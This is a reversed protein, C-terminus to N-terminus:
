QPDCLEEERCAGPPDTSLEEIAACDLGAIADICASAEENSIFPQSWSQCVLPQDCQRSDICFEILALEAEENDPIMGCERKSAAEVTCKDECYATLDVGGSTDGGCGRVEGPLPAALVLFLSAAALAIAIPRAARRAKAMM